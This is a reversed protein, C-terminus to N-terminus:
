AIQSVATKEGVGGNVEVVLHFIGKGLAGGGTAALLEDIGEEFGFHRQISQVIKEGRKVFLHLPQVFAPPLNQQEADNENADQQKAKQKPIM